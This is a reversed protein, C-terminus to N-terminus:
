PRGADPTRAAELQDARARAESLLATFRPDGALKQLEREGALERLERPRLGHQVAERLYGLSREVQGQALVCGALERLAVATGHRDPGAARRRELVQLELEEAERFRGERELIEALNAQMSSYILGEAGFARARHELADRAIAEAETLKGQAALAAALSARFSLVDQHDPGDVRAAVALVERLGKEAEAYRGQDLALEALEGQSSLTDPHEPGLVRRQGELTQRDLAEAEAYLGLEQTMLALTQATGLTAPHDPGLLRQQRALVERGQALAQEDLGQHAYVSVLNSQLELLDPDDPGFLRARRAIGDKMLQEAEASRGTDDLVNALNAAVNITKPSDDGVTRRREALVERWLKEAEAYKGQRYFVTGLDSEPGLAQDSQAGSVRGYIDVSRRLLDEAQPLLGLDTYVGGMVAMLHAQVAPEKSLEEGIQKSARDLVERATVTSGRSQNPDVVKFMGSLFDAVRRSSEAERNARDRERIVDRVSIAGVVGLVILALASVTLAVRHKRVWRGVLERTSYRHAAVLQGSQFRRLEGALAAADPFRQAPERAMATRVITLLDPALGPASQELPQPAADIVKRVVEASSSGAFPARGALLHYLVAGLAYVDSRKDVALGRAQEPAMHTPTGLVSGDLTLEGSDMGAVGPLPAAEAERLDKALGWDIVVTEGFEGVLINAPKLDRHIIQHQHAYAIADIAALVAPLLRLREALSAAQAVLESLPKGHVLRMIIFPEGSARRGVDYVPIISPHQLRATMLSERVFRAQARESHTQLMEKIAVERGIARDVGSSVRGMGGRALERALSYRAEFSLPQAPLDNVRPVEIGGLPIESREAVLAARREGSDLTAEAGSEEALPARPLPERTITEASSDDEKRDM